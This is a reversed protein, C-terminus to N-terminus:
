PPPPLGPVDIPRETRLLCPDSWADFVENWLSFLSNSKWRQEIGDETREAVDIVCEWGEEGKGEEEEEEGIVALVSEVDKLAGVAWTENSRNRGDLFANVTIWLRLVDAVFDPLCSRVDVVSALACM